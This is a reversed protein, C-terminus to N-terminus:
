RSSKQEHGAHAHEDSKEHAYAGPNKDFKDKCEPGCFAFKQGQYNSTAHAKKEDVQMGCVPDKMM